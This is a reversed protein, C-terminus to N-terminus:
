HLPEALQLQDQRFYGVGHLADGDYFGVEYRMGFVRQPADPSLIESIIGSHGAWKHGLQVTVRATAPYDCKPLNNISALVDAKAEEITEGNGCFFHERGWSVVRGTEDILYAMAHVSHGTDIVKTSVNCFYLKGSEAQLIDLDVAGQITQEIRAKGLANDPVERAKAILAAKNQEDM